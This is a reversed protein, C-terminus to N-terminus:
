KNDHDSNIVNNKNKYLLDNYNSNNLNYNLIDDM